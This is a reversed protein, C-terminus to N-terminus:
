SEVERALDAISDMRVADSAAACPLEVVFCAGGGERAHVSVSGGHLAAVARCIALGLGAGPKARSSAGREFKAFIRERDADRVGPGRDAVVLRLIAGAMSATVEVPSQVTSYKAANELLNVILQEVLTADIAVLPISADVVIRVERGVFLSEVRRMACGVVEEISHWDRQAAIGGSELRTLDLMNRVHRELADADQRISQVLDLRTAADIAAGDDILTTAAGTISALPTRLDHSVSSLMVNRLREEEARQRASLAHEGVIVRHMAVAINNAFSELLRQAPEARLLDLDLGACCLLGVPENAVVLPQVVAAGCQTARKSEMAACLSAEDGFSGPLVGPVFSSFRGDTFELLSGECLFAFAFHKEVTDAVDARSGCAALDRSLEYLARSRRERDQMAAADSQVKSTLTSVVLAVTLMIVFTPLYYLDALVFSYYHPVFFYIFCAIGGVTALVSPGRGLRIAAIVVGLLYVMVLNELDGLQFLLASVATAAVVIGVAISYRHRLQKQSEIWRSLLSPERQASQLRSSERHPSM